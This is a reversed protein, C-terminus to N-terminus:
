KNEMKNNLQVDIWNSMNEDVFVGWELLLEDKSYVTYDYELWNGFHDLIDTTTQRMVVEISLSGM